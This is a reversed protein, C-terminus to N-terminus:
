ASGPRGGGDSSGPKNLGLGADPQKSASRAVNPENKIEGIETRNGKQGVLRRKKMERPSALGQLKCAKGIMPPSKGDSVQLFGHKTMVRLGDSTLPRAYLSGSCRSLTTTLQAMVVARAYKTSAVVDGIWYGAPRARGACIHEALFTSGTAQGLEVARVGLATLPLVKFSGVLERRIVLGSEVVEKQVLTFVSSCKMIWTRMLDETPVDNGFYQAYLEHLGKLDSLQAHSCVHKSDFDGYLVVVITKQIRDILFASTVALLGLAVLVGGVIMSVSYALDPLGLVKSFSDKSVGVGFTASGVPLVVLGIELLTKKSM